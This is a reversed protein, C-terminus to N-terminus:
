THPLGTSRVRGNCHLNRDANSVSAGSYQLPTPDWPDCGLPGTTRAPIPQATAGRVVGCIGGRDRRGASPAASSTRHATSTAGRPAAGLCRNRGAVWVERRATRLRGISRPLYRISREHSAARRAMEAARAEEAEAMRQHAAAAKAESAVARSNVLDRDKEAESLDTRAEALLQEAEVRAALLGHIVSDADSRVIAVREEAQQEATVIQSTLRGVEERAAQEATVIQSTLRGVEERASAVADLLAPTFAEETAPALIMNRLQHVAMHAIHSAPDSVPAKRGTLM